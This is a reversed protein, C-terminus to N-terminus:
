FMRQYPMIGSALMKDTSLGDNRNFGRLEINFLMKNDYHSFSNTNKSSAIKREYGVNIAWCCTNYQLGLLQDVPKNVKADYYYVGVLSLRDALPWRSIVGVQSIAQQYGPYSIDSLMQEIHQQSAYRYNLQLTCNEDNQYELVADGFAISNLWSDYQLGGRIEWHNSIRWYSDGAWVVSGTNDYNDCTSNIDNIRPRSFYYIQGMSANFREVLQDDYIRTRVGSVLQNASSIRDLGSYTRDRFLGSYDTQLITSDYIGIDNQNRYPVFLYQLRPELTQTYNPGYDIDREFVMKTDTKFQPLMRTVSEKLHCGATNKKNYKDINKQQYYTGMVKAEINSSGWRNALLMNLTPEIHLRITKPYSNNVNTFKDAQSFVKFDFLGVDKKYYTVDLQPAARYANSDNTNFVQFEKYSLATKWNDDAYGFSFKQTTYGDTTSSYKFDMDDLYNSDSVKTYNINFRWVQDMVGNHRWYFLWRDSDGDSANESSYIWDKPLWDFEALGEGSTTLYRFETQIQTGRKSMYNPTITADYNSRLNLHYPASFELGNNSDYKLNPVLFGSHRKEGVPMKLYPSYFVSVKGIKFRANWIKVLQEKHDYIVETGMVSWSDDGPLCLTFNGNELVTYRNDNRQKIADASGRGQRGVIQYNGQYIDTDKTNLNSWAKLGQLKIDNNSYNVNGTATITRLLANNQEQRQTLQVEDATLRSNGQEIDVNGSFFAQEPYNVVAKNAQIHVSLSNTDGSILPKTYVPVGFLCQDALDALAQQTYLTYWILSGLLTPLRKKM